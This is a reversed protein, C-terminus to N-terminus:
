GAKLWNLFLNPNPNLNLKLLRFFFTYEFKNININIIKNFDSFFCNNYQVPYFKVCM